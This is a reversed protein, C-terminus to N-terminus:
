LGGGGQVEDTDQGQGGTDQMSQDFSSDGKALDKELAVMKKM